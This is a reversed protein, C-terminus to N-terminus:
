RRRSENIMQLALSNVDQYNLSSDAPMSFITAQALGRPNDLGAIEFRRALYIMSATEDLSGDRNGDLSEAMLSGADFFGNMMRDLNDGSIQGDEVLGSLVGNAVDAPIGISRAYEIAANVSVQEPRPAGSNSVAPQSPTTRVPPMSSDVGDPSDVPDLGARARAANRYQDATDNRIVGGDAGSGGSSGSTSRAQAENARRELVASRYEDSNDESGPAPELGTTTALTNSDFSGAPVSTSAPARTGAQGLRGRAAERYGDSSQAEVNGNSDVVGTSLMQSATDRATTGMLRNRAGGTSQRDDYLTGADQEALGMAIAKALFDGRNIPSNVTEPNSYGPVATPQLTPM